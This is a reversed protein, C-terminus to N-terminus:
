DGPAWGLKRLCEHLRRLNQCEVDDLLRDEVCDSILDAFARAHLGRIQESTLGLEDKKQRLYDFEEDAVELDCLVGKLAEWYAHLADERPAGPRGPGRTTRPSPAATISRSKLGGSGELVGGTSAPFPEHAFSEVFKYARLCGLDGFSRIRRDAMAQKYVVWLRAAALADAAAAHARRYEVGHDRCADELACRKGLGLMPRMYMLCLHPASRKVGAHRLEYELFRVDFYANYAAIVCESLAGVVSVVIDEFRPADAVDEERIGHIETAGMRRSPNVLTDLVMRPEQGPEVRMVSVEVVRDIGPCLGTSELDLVAVPTEAVPRDRVGSTGLGM